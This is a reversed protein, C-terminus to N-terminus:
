KSSEPDTLYNSALLIQVAGKVVLSHNHTLRSAMEDIIVCCAVIGETPLMEDIAYSVDYDDNDPTVLILMGTMGNENM